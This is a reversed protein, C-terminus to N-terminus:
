LGWRWDNQSRCTVVDSQLKYWYDCPLLLIADM